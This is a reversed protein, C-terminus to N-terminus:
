KKSNKHPLDTEEITVITSVALSGNISVTVPEVRKFMNNNTPDPKAGTLPLLYWREATTHYVQAPLQGISVLMTARVQKHPKVKIVQSNELAVTQTQSRSTTDSHTYEYKLSVSWEQKTEAVGAEATVSSTYTANIGVVHQDMTTTTVEQADEKNISITYEQVASGDNTEFLTGTLGQSGTFNTSPINFPAIIEKEPIIADWRFSSIADDLFIQGMDAIEKDGAYGIINNYEMGSGDSNEFVTATQRDQLSKWRMSSIRDQLYWDAISIVTGSPFESLFITSRNGTFKDSDTANDFFEIAGLSLDVTRWFFTSINDSMDVWGTVVAQTQGTGVLDLCRGCRSLDAVNRGDTNLDFDDTLTLVAGIPLNWAIYSTADNMFAPVAQRQNQRVSNVNIDLRQSNWDEDRFLAVVGSPLQPPSEPPAPLPTLLKVIDAM